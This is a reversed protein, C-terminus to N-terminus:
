ENKKVECCPAYNNESCGKCHRWHNLPVIEGYQCYGMSLECTGTQYYTCHPCGGDLKRKSSM